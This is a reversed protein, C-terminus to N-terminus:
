TVPCTTSTLPPWYMGYPQDDRRRSCWGAASSRRRSARRASPQRPWRASTATSSSSTPSAGPPSCARTPRTSAPRRGARRTPACRRRSPSRRSGAGLRGSQRRRAHAAHGGRLHGRAADAARRVLGIGFAVRAGADLLSRFAYTTQIRARGIVREAWRGDDIAHYPQMSAVVGLAAFRPIDAPALHQAHEIRFRRDRAGNARSVQEYIDLLERNARDGIAHVVVHLSARDAGTIWTRLQEPTTVVLGRDDGGGDYPADFLATQSGLSGDVFGKLVGIRLWDDGRGGAAVRDRLREWDSLPVAAYVRTRLRGARHARTSRM